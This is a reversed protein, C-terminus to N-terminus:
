LKAMPRACAQQVHGIKAAVSLIEKAMLEPVEEQLFHGADTMHVPASPFAERMRKIAPALIPDRKGWVISVPGKFNRAWADVGELSIMSPHDESLAVMRALALPGARSAWNPFPYSYARLQEPGMSNPDGQVRPLIPIPFNLGRFVFTSLLPAHSFRHFPTKRFPPKPKLVATNGYVAAKVRDPLRSAMGSIIPGGWDQGVITINDLGLTKVLEVISNIHFEMNHIELDDPKDSLGFGILDPVIVRHGKALLPPLIKRYLYCWAPNGHLLVIPHICDRPGDDILHMRLSRVPASKVTALSTIWPLALALFRRKFPLQKALWQPLEPVPLDTM